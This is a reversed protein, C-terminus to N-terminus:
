EVVRKDDPAAFEAAGDIALAWEGSFVVAAVVMGAAEGDEEGTGADLAAEGEALGVVEGVVDGGVGDVDVVQMGRHEVEEADVVGAQGEFVLAAVGAEGVDM